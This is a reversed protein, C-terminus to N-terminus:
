SFNENLLVFCVIATLSHVLFLLASYKPLRGHINANGLLFGYLPFQAVALAIFPDPIYGFIRASLMTFPFLIKAWFYDGHGAGASGIAVLLLLPSVVVSILLPTLLRRLKM